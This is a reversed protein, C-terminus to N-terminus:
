IIELQIDDLQDHNLLPGKNKDAIAKIMEKKLNPMEFININKKKLLDKPLIKKKKMYMVQSVWFYKDGEVNDHLYVKYLFAILTNM